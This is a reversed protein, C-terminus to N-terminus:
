CSKSIYRGWAELFGSPSLHVPDIHWEGNSFGDGRDTLQHVDLFRFGKMESKLKLEENFIKIMSVLDAVEAKSYLERDINPCPVGQFTIAHQQASSVDLVYALFRDVTSSIIEEFEKEPCKSRHKGMGSDLRCDIEGITLLVDSSKPISSLLNEFQRKYQNPLANGLDWQKCGKILMAHCRYDASNGPIRLHHSALSHSEGIVYLTKEFQQSSEPTLQREHWDLLSSLYGWYIKENKLKPSQSVQIGSSIALYDRSRTFDGRLFHCIALNVGARLKVEDTALQLTKELSVREAELNSMCGQVISLNHMADASGPMLLTARSCAAEAEDLLGLTQLMHGLSGYAEASDPKLSVARRCCDLAGDLDGLEQLTAGLRSHAEAFGAQNAIAELFSARAEQQKGLQQLACGLNYHTVASGSNLALASRYCAEAEEFRGIDGLANGLNNHAASFDSKLAIARRFSSEAEAFNGLERLVEGLNNHAESFAPHGTVARRFSAEAENLRGRGKLFSGFDNHAEALEPMLSTAQRYSAEADVLRGLAQLTSALNYHAKAFDPKLVIARSYSAEAEVLRGLAQFASGLNNHAEEDFPALDACKCVIPLCESYRGNQQLIAGLVKWPFPNEPYKETIIAALEEADTFSGDQYLMLLKQMEETLLEASGSSPSRNSVKKTM